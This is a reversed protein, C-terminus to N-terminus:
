TTNLRMYYYLTYYIYLYINPPFINFCILVTVANDNIANTQILVTPQPVFLILVYITSPSKDLTTDFDLISEM